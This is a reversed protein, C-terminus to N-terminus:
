IVRCNSVKDQRYEKTKKIALISSFIVFIIQLTIGIALSYDLVNELAFGAIFFGESLMIFLVVYNIRLKM